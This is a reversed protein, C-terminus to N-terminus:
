AAGRRAGEQLYLARGEQRWWGTGAALAQGDATARVALGLETRRPALPRADFCGPEYIGRSERLLSVWDYAGFAAWATVGLVPIGQEAATSAASWVEWWWALQDDLRGALAVETLALPRAYRQWTEQLMRPLDAVDFGGVRALEVDAYALRGDGGHSSEPFLDLRHDLYRDSTVYHDIGLVDPPAPESKLKDLIRLHAPSAALYTWLPHSPDVAGTVLDFTLWRRHNDFDVAAQCEATGWTRGVDENVIIRARPTVARIARTAEALAEAQALILHAFIAHDRAYPAWWGYLGGFRATTLPENIPLYTRVEPFRTAVAASYDAFARAWGPQLPDLGRPGFGHHLLGVIPEMGLASLGHIREEAWTWDTPDGGQPSRGWLVPYRVSTAGLSALLGLDALRRDHRTLALQDSLRDGVTLFSCEPGAWVEPRGAALGGM